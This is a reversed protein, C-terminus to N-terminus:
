DYYLNSAATTLECFVVSSSEFETLSPLDILLNEVDENGKATGIM